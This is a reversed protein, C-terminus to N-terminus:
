LGFQKAGFVQWRSEHPLTRATIKLSDGSQTWVRIGYGPVYNIKAVAPYNATQTM